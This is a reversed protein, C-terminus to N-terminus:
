VVSMVMLMGSDLHISWKEIAEPYQNRTEKKVFLKQKGRNIQGKPRSKKQNM